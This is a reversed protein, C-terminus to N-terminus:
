PRRAQARAIIIGHSWALGSAGGDERQAGEGSVQMEVAM